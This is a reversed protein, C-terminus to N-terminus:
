RKASGRVSQALALGIVVATLMALAPTLLTADGFATISVILMTAAGLISFFSDRGRKLAGRLLTMILAVAAIALFALAPRGLEIAAVAATSQTAINVPEDINRYLQALEAFTGAGSGSWRTDALMRAALEVGGHDQWHVLALLPENTRIIGLQAFTAFTTAILTVGIAAMGWLGFGLRRILALGAVLGIAAGTAVVTYASGIRFLALACLVFVVGGPIMGSAMSGHSAHETHGKRTESREYARVVAALAIACGIAVVTHMPLYQTGTHPWILILIAVAASVGLLLFLIQEAPRRDVAVISVALALAVFGAYRGLMILTAGPDVSISAILPSGLASSASSWIPHGFGLPLTQILMWGAPILAIIAARKLLVKHHEIKEPQVSHAALGLAAACLATVCAQIIAGDFFLLVPVLAVGIVIPIFANYVPRALLNFSLVM